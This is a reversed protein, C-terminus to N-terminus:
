QARRPLTLRPFNKEDHGRFRADLAVLLNEGSQIGAQAPIVSLFLHSRYSLM